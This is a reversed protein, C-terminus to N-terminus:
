SHASHADTSKEFSASTDRAPSPPQHKLAPRLNAVGDAMRGFPPHLRRRRVPRERRHHMRSQGFLPEWGSIRADRRSALEGPSCGAACREGVGTRGFVVHRRLGDVGEAVLLLQHTGATRRGHIWKDEFLRVLSLVFMPLWTLLGALGVTRDRPRGGQREREREVRFRAPGHLPVRSGHGTVPREWRRPNRADNLRRSCKRVLPPALDDDDMVYVFRAQQHHTDHPAAWGWSLLGQCSPRTCRAKTIHASDGKTETSRPPPSTTEIRRSYSWLAISM